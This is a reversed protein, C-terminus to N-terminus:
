RLLCAVDSFGPKRQASRERGGFPPTSARPPRIPPRALRKEAQLVSFAGPPEMRPLHAALVAQARRGGGAASPFPQVQSASSEDSM